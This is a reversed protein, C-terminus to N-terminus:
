LRGYKERREQERIVKRKRDGRRIIFPFLVMGALMSLSMLLTPLVKVISGGSSLTTSVTILGSSFSAVGMVLSPALSLALPTEDPRQPMTPPDIKLELATIERRFGPSRYYIPTTIEDPPEYEVVEASRYERLVESQFSVIGDPNNIALFRDGLVIKVGMIYLVNGPHLRASQRVRKEDIYIGNTSHCDHIVWDTGSFVLQAHISSVYPSAIMIQNNEGSGINVTMSKRMWYKRFTCRDRTYPETFIYGQRGDALQVMYMKGIELVLCSVQDTDGPNYLKIKKGATIKWIGNEAEIGLLRRGSSQIEKEKDELWYQGRVKEPLLVGYLRNECILTVLM